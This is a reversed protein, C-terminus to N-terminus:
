MDEEEEEEEIFPRFCEKIYDEEFWLFDNLETLTPINDCFVATQLYDMFTYEFGKEEIWELTSIAGEWCNEKLDEFSYDIKVEM